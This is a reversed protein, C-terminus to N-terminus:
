INDGQASGVVAGSRIRLELRSVWNVTRDVDQVSKWLDASQQDDAPGFSTPNGSPIPCEAAAGEDM